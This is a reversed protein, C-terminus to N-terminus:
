KFPPSYTGFASYFLSWKKIIFAVHPDLSDSLSIGLKSM